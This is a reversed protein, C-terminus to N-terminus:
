DLNFCIASPTNSAIRGPCRKGFAPKSSSRITSTISNTSEGYAFGDFESVDGTQDVERGFSRPMQERPLRANRKGLVDKPFPDSFDDGENYSITRRQSFRSERGTEGVLSVKIPDELAHAADRRFRM